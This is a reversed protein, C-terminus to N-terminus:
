GPCRPATTSACCSSWTADRRARAQRRRHAGPRLARRAGAHLRDADGRRRRDRVRDGPDAHGARYRRKGLAASQRVRDALPREGPTGLLAAFCAPSDFRPWCLWDISGDRGVLAATQCDGILAYDEIKMRQRIGYWRATCSDAISMAKAGAHDRRPGADGGPVRHDVLAVRARRREPHQHDPHQRRSPRDEIQQQAHVPHLAARRAHAARQHALTRRETERRALGARMERRERAQDACTTSRGSSAPCRRDLRQDVARLGIRRHELRDARRAGRDREGGVDEVRSPMPASNTSRAPRPACSRPTAPARASRRRRRASRATRPPSSAAGPRRAPRRHEVRRQHRRPQVGDVQAVVALDQHDVAREAEGAAHVDVPAVPTRVRRRPTGRGASGGARGPPRRLERLHEGVVPLEGGVLRQAARRPKRASSAAPSTSARAMSPRGRRARRARQAPRQDAASLAACRETRM